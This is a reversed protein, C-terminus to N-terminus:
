RYNLCLPDSDNSSEINARLEALGHAAGEDGASVPALVLDATVLANVTLPGLNPPTDIVILDYDLSDLADRLFGERGVEGVLALEVAGLERTPPLVDIARPTPLPRM